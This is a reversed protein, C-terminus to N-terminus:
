TKDSLIRKLKFFTSQWGKVYNHKSGSKLNMHEFQMKTSRGEETLLVVIFSEIGPESEWHWTFTLRKFKEIENYIGSCTHETLDSDKFTVEFSGGSRVNLSAKLVEGEPDSGFWKMIVSPETWAEWVKEISAHITTEIFVSNKSIKKYM